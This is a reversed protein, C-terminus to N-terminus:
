FRSNLEAPAYLREGRQSDHAVGEFQVALITMDDHLPMPGTFSRVAAVVEDRIRDTTMESCREVVKRLRRDGFLEGAPNMAEVVGDSFLMLIDGPEIPEVAQRYTVGPLLGLVPGGEELQRIEVRGAGTRVLLPACHGANIYHLSQSEPDYYSWFMSAFRSGSSRECLLQNLRGSSEAHQRASGAWSSSRVAGHIVGMLLAAPLGKGSVDGLVAAVGAGNVPFVDYFDGGVGWVPVCEAALQVGPVRQDAPPLLDQQVSRAMELQQELQKGQVFSRFRAGIVVMAALLAVAASCDIILNRRLPWFVTNASDLSMAMEVLGAPSPFAEVVMRGADTARITRIPEHNAFGAHIQDETFSPTVELGSHALVHGQRDRVQIWAIKHDKGLDEIVAALRSNDQGPAHHLERELARMHKSMEHGLQDVVIRHSIFVYDVVSNTLLLLALLVGLALSFKFWRYRNRVFEPTGIWDNM